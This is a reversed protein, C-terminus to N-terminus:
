RRRRRRRKRKKCRNRPPTKFERRTKERYNIDSWFSLVDFLEGLFQIFPFCKAVHYGGRGEGEKAM